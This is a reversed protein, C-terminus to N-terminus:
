FRFNFDILINHVRAHGIALGDKIGGFDWAAHNVSYYKYGAGLSMNENLKFRMGGFAQWAFEITSWSGDVFVGNATVNNFTAISVDGGAGAGAYTIVPCRATEYRFVVNAMLPVHTLSADIDGFGNVNKVSNYIAGTQLEVGLFPLFNYGGAVSVSAGPDFELKVGPTPTVFTRLNIKNELSVGAATNLYWGQSLGTSASAFLCAASGVVVIISLKKLKM